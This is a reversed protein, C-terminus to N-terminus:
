RRMIFPSDAMSPGELQDRLQRGTFHLFVDDLTTNAVSISEVTVGREAAEALVAGTTAAGAHSTLRFQSGDGTVSDVGPLGALRGRWDAPM